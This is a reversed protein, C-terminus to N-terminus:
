TNSTFRVLNKSFISISLQKPKSHCLRAFDFGRVGNLIRGRWGKGNIQHTVSGQDVWGGGSPSGVKGM